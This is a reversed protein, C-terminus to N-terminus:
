RVHVCVECLPLRRDPHTPVAGSCRIYPHLHCRVGPRPDSALRLCMMRAYSNDFPFVEIAWNLACGRVSEAQSRAQAELMTRLGRAVESGEPLNKYAAALRNIAEQVTARIGDQEAALAQFFSGAIEVDNHFVEPARQVHMTRKPFVRVCWATLVACALRGRVVTLAAYGSTCSCALGNWM